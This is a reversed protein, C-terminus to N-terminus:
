YRLLAGIGCFKEFRKGLEHKSSIFEIESNKEGINIIGKLDKLSKELLSESILIKEARGQIVAEKVKNMGYTVKKEMAVRKFFEEVLMAEKAAEAEKIINKLEGSKIIEKVGCIGIHNTHIKVHNKKLYKSIEEYVFGPGGIIILSPNLKEHLEDIKKVIEQIYKEFEKKYTPMDKRPLKSNITCVKKIEREIIMFDAEHSDLLVVLFKKSKSSAKKLIEIDAKSWEKEITIERGPELNFSHHSGKPVDEPGEEIVGLVRLEENSFNIKAVKIKIWVRKRKGEGGKKILRSTLGSVKDGPRIIKSLAWLDENSEIIIKALGKKFNQLVKM